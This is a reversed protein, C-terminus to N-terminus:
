SAACRSCSSRSSDRDPHRPHEAAEPNSGVAYVSRGFARRASSSPACVAVIAVAILVFIPIGVLTARAANTYGPPLETLTVQKGGALLFDIGRYISLTGLTAVISPVRFVAVVIGNIM